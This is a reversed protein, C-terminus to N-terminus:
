YTGGPVSFVFTPLLQDVTTRSVHLGSVDFIDLAVKGWSTDLQKLQLVPALLGSKLLLYIEIHSM